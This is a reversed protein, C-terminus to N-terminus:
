LSQLIEKFYDATLSIGEEVQVQPEWSSLSKMFTLDPKRQMPDDSPLASFVLNSKSKTIAIVTEALERITFERDNGLNIPTSIETPHM